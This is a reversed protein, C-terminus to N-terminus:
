IRGLLSALIMQIAQKANIGGETTKNIMSFMQAYNGMGKTIGANELVTLENQSLGLRSAAMKVDSMLKQMYPSKNLVSKGPSHEWYRTSLGKDRMEQYGKIIRELEVLKQKDSLTSRNLANELVVATNKEKNLGTVTKEKEAQANILKTQAVTRAIDASQTMLAIKLQNQQFSKDLHTGSMQPPQSKIVPGASAANGAALTKSMGAMEMDAARRQVANDEREFMTQQLDREYGQQEKMSAYNKENLAQANDIIQQNQHLQFGGYILNGLGSGLDGINALDPLSYSYNTPTTSNITM